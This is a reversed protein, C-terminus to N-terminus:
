QKLEANIARAMAYALPVRTEYRGFSKIPLTLTLPGPCTAKLSSRTQGRAFRFETVIGLGNPVTLEEEVAFGPVQDYGVAGLQRDVGLSRLGTMRDYFGQIFHLRRMEGDSVVDVGAREQDLLAVRTADDYVEALDAPGGKRAGDRALHVWGPIGHSGVVTTPLLPLQDFQVAM